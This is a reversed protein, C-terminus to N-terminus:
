SCSPRLLLIGCPFTRAAVKQRSNCFHGHLLSGQFDEPNIVAVDHSNRIRLVRRNELRCAQSEQFVVFFLEAFESLHFKLRIRSGTQYIRVDIARCGTDNQGAHSSKAHWLFGAAKFKRGEPRNPP